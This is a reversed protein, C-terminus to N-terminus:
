KQWKKLWISKFYPLTLTSLTFGITPVIANLWPRDIQIARMYISISLYTFAAILARRAMSTEWAKDSEVGKNRQNIRVIENELKAIREETKM